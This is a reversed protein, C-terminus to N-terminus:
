SPQGETTIREKGVRGTYSMAWTVAERTKPSVRATRVGSHEGNFLQWNATRQAVRINHVAKIRAVQVPVSNVLSNECFATVFRGNQATCGPRM